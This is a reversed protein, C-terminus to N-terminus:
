GQDCAIRPVAAIGCFAGDRDHLLYAPCEGNPFANRLQQVTV